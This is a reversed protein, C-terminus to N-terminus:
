EPALNIEMIASIDASTRYETGIELVEKIWLTANFDGQIPAARVGKVLVSTRLNFDFGWPFGYSTALYAHKSQRATM